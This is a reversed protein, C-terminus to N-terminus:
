QGALAVVTGAKPRGYRLSVISYGESKLMSLLAPLMASTRTHIDHMLIIGKRKARVVAMTRAAIAEPTSAFYDKSDIDVDLVVIGAAALERRLQPTDALYPFRFFGVTSGTAKRVAADGSVIDSIARDHGKTQLNAHDYTHSGITHGEAAVRSALASYNRAMQGVMLFTAKVHFRDLVDLVRETRGPIPGDDFTLIIEKDKLQIQSAASVTLTRGSFGGQVNAESDPGRLSFGVPRFWPANMLTMKKSIQELGASRTDETQLAEPAATEQVPAFATKTASSDKQHKTACGTVTLGALLVYVLSRLRM